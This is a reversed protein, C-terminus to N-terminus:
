NQIRLLALVNLSTTGNTSLYAFPVNYIDALGQQMRGLAKNLDFQFLSGLEPVSVSHDFRAVNQFRAIMEALEPPVSAKDFM